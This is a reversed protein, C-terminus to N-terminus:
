KETINLYTIYPACEGDQVVIRVMSSGAEPINLTYNTGSEAKINNIYINATNSASVQLIYTSKTSKNSVEGHATTVKSLMSSNTGLKVVPAGTRGVDVASGDANKQGNATTFIGCVETSTEGFQANDLVASYVRVYRFTKGNVNIPMKTAPDVAWELDFGDGGTKATTYATYPNVANGYTTPSDNPTVDVYGFAYSATTNYDPIATIGSFVLNNATHSVTVNSGTNDHM